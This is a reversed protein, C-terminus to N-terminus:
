KGFVLFLREGTDGSGYLPQTLSPDPQRGAVEFCSIGFLYTEAPNFRIDDEHGTDLERALEITWRDNQWRGRAQIDARSGTPKQHQFQDVKEGIYDIYILPKYASQGTDGRRLLYASRGTRSTVPNTKPTPEFFLQQFKDDAYGAPDTRCAKWFWLDATYGDDSYVSLDVQNGVMSWKLILTDERQNGLEYTTAKANWIWPKHSRSEDADGYQILFFIRTKSYAVRLRIDVGSAKDQTTYTSAQAWQPDDARGDITPEQAVRAAVIKQDAILQQSLMVLLLLANFVIFASKHM